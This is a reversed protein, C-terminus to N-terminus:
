RRVRARVEDSVVSVFRRVGNFGFLVEFLPDELRALVGHSHSLQPRLAFRRTLEEYEAVPSGGRHGVVEFDDRFPGVSPLNLPPVTVAQERGSRAREARPREAHDDGRAPFRWALESLCGCCQRGLPGLGPGQVENFFSLIEGHM